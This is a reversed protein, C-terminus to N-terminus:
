LGTKCCKWRLGGAWGEGVVQRRQYGYTKRLTHTLKEEASFNMTDKIKIESVM